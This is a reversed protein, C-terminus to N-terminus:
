SLNELADIINTYTFRFGETLLREPYVWRSKLLLETETRILFSGIELLWSPPPIGFPIHLYNRFAKMFMSNSIPGPSACNYISRHKGHEILWEVMRAFDKEHIWSVMQKGPGQQGGLGLRALLLTPPLAGGRKGLVIAIRMIIKRTHLCEENNFAREWQKCVNMSFDDGIEGTRETMIKDYSSRYITSSSAQLWVRPPNNVSRIAEGLIQTSAIRSKLIENKNRQTYRCNVSKGTLNILVDAGDVANIWEGPNRGNWIEYRINEHDPRKTRSLIVIKDFSSKFHQTLVWGLFGTGGAIVLKKM